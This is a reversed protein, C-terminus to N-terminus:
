NLDNEGGISVCISWDVTDDDEKDGDDGVAAQADDVGNRM